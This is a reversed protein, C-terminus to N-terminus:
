TLGRLDQVRRFNADGERFVAVSLRFLPGCLLTMPYGWRLCRKHGAALQGHWRQLIEFQHTAREIEQDRTM